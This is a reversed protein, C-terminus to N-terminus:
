HKTCTVEVKNVCASWFWSVVVDNANTDCSDVSSLEAVVSAEIVPLLSLLEEEDLWICFAIAM